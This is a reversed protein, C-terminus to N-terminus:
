NIVGRVYFFGFIWFDWLLEPVTPSIWRGVGKKYNGANLWLTLASESTREQFDAFRKIIRPEKLIYYM